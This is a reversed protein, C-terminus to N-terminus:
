ENRLARFPNSASEGEDGLLGEFRRYREEPSMLVFGRLGWPKGYNDQLTKMEELVVQAAFANMGAQRLFVEWITEDQLLTTPTEVSYRIMKSIIWTALTTTDGDVLILENESLEQLHNIFASLSVLAECDSEELNAGAGANSDSAGGTRRVVVVLREYRTATRQIRERVPSRAAQGPLSQQKIKQLTTLILGTSPSLILDAEDPSAVPRTRALHVSMEAEVAALSYLNFDRELITASPYLNEIRHTLKRDSLFNTSAIFYRPSDPIVLKPSPITFSPKEAVNANTLDRSTSEGLSAKSRSTSTHKDILRQSKQLEGKRIGLFQNLSDMASFTTKFAPQDNPTSENKETERSIGAHGLTEDCKDDNQLELVREKILSRMDGAPPFVGCELEEEDSDNNEDFIRLGPPKWTLTELDVPEHDNLFSALSGDDEITEQLEFRGLSMPFPVWTLAKETQSDQLWPPIDLHTEKIEVLLNKRWDGIAMSPAVYWPPVSKAFDMVPVAVRSTTDAEQLQEQEIAQEAKAAVPAIHEAFMMDIDDSSLQEPAPIPPPLHPIVERLAESFTVKKMSWPPPRESAPPTLPGEVKLDERRSKKYPPPSPTRDIGKLPSYIDGLYVSDLGEEEHGHGITDIPRKSSTLADKELLIRDLAEAQQRTPSSHDSLFELRGTDSSPEFPQPTPSRPLLPPSVTDRARDQSHVPREYDFGPEEEYTRTDLVAGLYAFVDKPVELKENQARQFAAEPLGLYKSPWGFGEDEEDNVKEFPFFEDALNPVIYHAFNIMDVEHDTRLLPLEHKNDRIRYRPLPDFGEFACGEYQKPNTVALFASAEKVAQLREHLPSRAEVRFHQWLIGDDFPLPTDATPPLLELPDIDLHNHSLGYYRAYEIISPQQESSM